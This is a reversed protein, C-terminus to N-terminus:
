ETVVFDDCDDLLAIAKCHNSRASVLLMETACASGDRVDYVAAIMGDYDMVIATLDHESECVLCHALNLGGLFV